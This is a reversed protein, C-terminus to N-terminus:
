VIGDEGTMLVYENIECEFLNDKNDKDYVKALEEDSPSVIKYGIYNLSAPKEGYSEVQLKFIDKAILKCLYDETYFCVPEIDKNYRYACAIIINDNTVELNFIDKIIDIDSQTAVVVETQFENIARVAMRAKYKIDDDKNASTKISELEEITKSSLVVNSLDGCNNLIENTDFFKKM